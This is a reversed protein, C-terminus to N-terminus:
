ACLDTSSGCSVKSSQSKPVVASWGDTGNGYMTVLVSGPPEGVKGRKPGECGPLMAQCGPGFVFWNGQQSAEGISVIPFSVDAENYRVQFSWREYWFM